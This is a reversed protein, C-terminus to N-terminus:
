GKQYKRKKAYVNRCEMEIDFSGPFGWKMLKGPHALGRWRGAIDKVRM